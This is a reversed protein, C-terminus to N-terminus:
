RLLSVRRTASLAGAQLQIVYIGAPAPAGADDRGRWKFPHEGVALAGRQITAVHRGTADIVDIGVKQERPVVVSFSITGRTPNPTPPRSFSIRTPIREGPVSANASVVLVGAMGPSHFFCFFRVTDPTTFTSDFAPHAEDLLYDFRTGAQPDDPGTGNTLTHIGLSLRWGVTSGVPVVLTDVESGASGDADWSQDLALFFFGPVPGQPGSAPWRARTVGHPTEIRFWGPAGDLPVVSASAACHPEGHAPSPHSGALMSAVAVLLIARAHTM